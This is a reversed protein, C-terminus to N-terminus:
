ASRDSAQESTTASPPGGALHAEIELLIAEAGEFKYDDILLREKRGDREVLALAIGKNDWRRKDVGYIAAIPTRRGNAEVITVGDSQITQRLAILLVALAWLGGAMSMAGMVFQGLIDTRSYAKTPAKAPWGQERAYAPWAELREDQEFTKYAQFRANKKPFGIAGDYFFWLGLAFVALVIM